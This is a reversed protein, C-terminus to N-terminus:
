IEVEAEHGVVVGGHPEVGECEVSLFLSVEAVPSYLFPFPFSPFLHSSPPLSVHSETNEIVPQRIARTVSVHVSRRSLRLGVSCEPVKDVGEVRLRCQEVVELVFRLLLYHTSLTHTGGKGRERNRQQLQTYTTGGKGRERNRQQLQTYTTGGKGRGKGEREGGKRRGKGEREGREIERNSNHTHQGEREGGKGRGKEEREGGKGRERNRQQLQTQQVCM